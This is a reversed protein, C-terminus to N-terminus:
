LYFVWQFFGDLEQHREFVQDFVFNVCVQQSKLDVEPFTLACM